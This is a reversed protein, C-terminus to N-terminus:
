QYKYFTLLTDGYVERRYKRIQSGQLFPFTKQHHQVIIKGGDNTIEEVQALNPIREMIDKFHYPPDIFVIDFKMNKQRLLKLGKPLYIKFIKFIKSSINLLQLNERIIKICRFNKDVFVAERAGRSLAEIGINGSGAYLDLFASGIIGDGIIDFLSEKVRDSTPRM